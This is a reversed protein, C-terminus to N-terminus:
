EPRYVYHVEAFCSTAVRPRDSYAVVVENVRVRMPESVPYRHVDSLALADAACANDIAGQRRGMVHVVYWRAGPAPQAAHLVALLGGIMRNICTRKSGKM